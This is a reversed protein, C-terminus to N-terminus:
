QRDYHIMCYMTRKASMQQREVEATRLVCGKVLPWFKKLLGHGIVVITVHYVVVVVEAYRTKFRSKHQCNFCALLRFIDSLMFMFFNRCITAQTIYLTCPILIINKSSLTSLSQKVCAQLTKMM